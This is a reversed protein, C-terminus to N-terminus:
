GQHEEHKMQELQSTLKLDMADDLSGWEGVCLALQYLQNRLKKATVEDVFLDRRLSFSVLLLSAYNVIHMCLIEAIHDHDLTKKNFVTIDDIEPWIQRLLVIVGACKRITNDENVQEKNAIRSIETLLEGVEGVLNWKLRERGYHEVIQKYRDDKSKSTM